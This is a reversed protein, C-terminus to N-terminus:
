VDDEKNIYGILNVRKDAGFLDNIVNTWNVQDMILSADGRRLTSIDINDKIKGWAIFNKILSRQKDSIPYQRWKAQKEIIRTMDDSNSVAKVSEDITLADGLTSGVVAFSNGNQELAIVRGKCRDETMCILFAKKIPKALKRKEYIANKKKLTKLLVDRTGVTDGFKVRVVVENLKTFGTAKFNGIAEVKEFLSGEGYLKHHVLMPERQLWRASPVFDFDVFEGKDSKVREEHKSWTIVWKGDGIIWSPAFWTENDVLWQSGPPRKIFVPFNKLEDPLNEKFIANTMRRDGEIDNAAVVDSFGIRKQTIKKKDFVDIILCDDKDDSLRLGRGMIQCYLGMSKTPRAVCVFNFHPVDFGETLVLNNVLVDIERNHVRKMIERREEKDTHGYVQAVRVEQNLIVAMAQAHAVDVGFLLGQRGEDKVAKFIRDAILKNRAGINVAKSLQDIAYDGARTKVGTLNAASNLIEGKPPVLYNNAVATGINMEILVNGLPLDGGSFRYPTATLGIFKADPYREMLGHYTKNKEDYHHWEDVVIYEPCFDKINKRQRHLTQISGVIVQANSSARQNAMEIQIDVEPLANKLAIVAQTILEERHATWLLKPLYGLKARLEAFCYATQFTKGTGTPLIVTALKNNTESWKLFANKGKEQYRRPIIKSIM